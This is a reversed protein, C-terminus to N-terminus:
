PITLTMLYLPDDVEHDPRDTPKTPSVAAQESLHKVLHTPWALFTNLAQGVLVVEDTPVAVPADADKIEKVGVKVHGHLWPINGVITFGEYVRGLTVLCSPNEEIYLGCKDSDSTNPDTVSPDVCSGKTGVRAASSGVEPEPPLALGQSEIQSQLQSQMQSFCLMLQRTVKETISEELQGQPLNTSGIWLIAKITVSAGAAHVRGLHEPRGIAVTLLDHRGHPVFSGQSAIGLQFHSLIKEAIEKAAESTM